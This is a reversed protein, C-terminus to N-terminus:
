MKLAHNGRKPSRSVLTAPWGPLRNSEVIGSSVAYRTLIAIKHMNLKKMLSFRHRGATKNTISLLGAIQKTCYGEAILQLVEAHRLSLAPTQLPIEQPTLRRQLWHRLVHNLLPPSFYAGGGATERIAELLDMGASQKMVYGAVGAELAQRVHQADDYSSLILV